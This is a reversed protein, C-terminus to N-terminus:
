QPLAHLYVPMIYTIIRGLQAHAPVELNLIQHALSRELRKNIINPLAQWHKIFESNKEEEM